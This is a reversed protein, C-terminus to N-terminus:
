NRPFLSPAIQRVAPNKGLWLRQASSCSPATSRKKDSHCGRKLLQSFPLLKLEEWNAERPHPVWVKPPLVSAILDGTNEAGRSVASGGSWLHPSPSLPPGVERSCERPVEDWYCSGPAPHSISIEEEEESQSSQPCPAQTRPQLRFHFDLSLPLPRPELVVSEWKEEQTKMSKRSYSNRWKCYARLVIELPKLPNNKFCNEGTESPLLDVSSRM